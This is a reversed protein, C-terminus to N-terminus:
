RAKGKGKKRKCAPAKKDTLRELNIKAELAVIEAEEDGDEYGPEHDHESGERPQEDSMKQLALGQLLRLRERM